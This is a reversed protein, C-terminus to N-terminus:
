ETHDSLPWEFREFNVATHTFIVSLPYAAMEVLVLYLNDAPYHYRTSMCVMKDRPYTKDPPCVGGQM